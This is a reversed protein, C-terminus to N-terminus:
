NAKLLEGRWGADGLPYFDRQAIESRFMNNIMLFNGLMALSGTNVPDISRQLISPWSYFKRRADVCRRQLEDPSLHVPQFPIKNYSYRDDLWWSDYLLRNEQQLRAYLPTGPFPTLHNFAAIFFRHQRAYAVSEVFSSARDHDYGFVFTIYLRIGYRRLNALAQEYGGKMTNFGKNMSALNEPNLSEFGILVCQCGSRQLLSLFEEDHAAHISVQGVWRIRLPLLARLFEKAQSMDATLNDDIFFIAKKRPWV